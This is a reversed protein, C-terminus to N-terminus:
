GDIDTRILTFNQDAIAMKLNEITEEITYPSEAAIV